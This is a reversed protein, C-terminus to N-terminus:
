KIFNYRDVEITSNMIKLPTINNQLVSKIIAPSAGSILAVGEQNMKVPVNGARGNVNWFVIQPLTYGYTEFAKKIYTFNTMDGCYDFEMDSIVLITKPIDSDHLHNDVAKKLILDFVATLNTNNGWESRALQSVRANIDGRLYQM